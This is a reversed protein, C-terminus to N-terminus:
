KLTSDSARIWEDTAVRYMKQGKITASRDTYWPTNTDLARDIIVQGRSNYVPTVDKGNTTAVTQLPTYKYVDSAKVYENTAVRYYESGNISVQQDIIWSSGESLVVDNNLKGNKDYIKIYGNKPYGSVINDETQDSKQVYVTSKPTDKDITYNVDDASVFAYGTPAKLVITSGNAGKGAQTGVEKGSDQDVYSVNYPTDAAVVYKTVNQNNKLLIFGNDLISAFAYGSPATLSVYNGFSGTGKVETGIVSGDSKNKFTVTYSLANDSDALKQVYVDKTPQDANLTQLRDSANVLKYGEPANLISPMGNNGTLDSHGVNSGDNVSIFNIKTDANKSVSYTRTHNSSTYDFDSPSTLTYGSPLAGQIDSSVITGDADKKGFNATYVTQKSTVDKYTVIPYIGKSNVAVNITDDDGGGFVIPSGTSDDNVVNGASDVATATYKVKSIGQADPVVNNYDFKILYSQNGSKIVRGQDLDKLSSVALVKNGSSDNDNDLQTLDPAKYINVTRIASIGQAYSDSPTFTVINNSDSAKAVVNTKNTIGNADDGNTTNVGVSNTDSSIKSILKSDDNSSFNMTQNSNFSVTPKMYNYDVNVTKTAGDLTYSVQNIFGHGKENSKVVKMPVLQESDDVVNLEGQLVKSFETQTKKGFIPAVKITQNNELDSFKTQSNVKNATSSSNLLDNIVQIVNNAVSNKFESTDVNLLKNSTSAAQVVSTNAGLITSSLLIGALVMKKYKKM